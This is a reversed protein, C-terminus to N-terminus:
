EALVIIDFRKRVLELLRRVHRGPAFHHKPTKGKLEPHPTAFWAKVEEPSAGSAAICALIKAKTTEWLQMKKRWRLVEPQITRVRGHHIRVIETYCRM